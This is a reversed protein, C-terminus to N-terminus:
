KTYVMLYYMICWSILIVGVISKLLKTMEQKEAETHLKIQHIEQEMKMQWKQREVSVAREKEVIMDAKVQAIAECIDPDVPKEIKELSCESPSREMSATAMVRIFRSRVAEIELRHDHHLQETLEKVIKEKEAEFLGKDVDRQEELRGREERERTELDLCIKMRKELEDITFQANQLDSNSTALEEKLRCVEQDKQEAESNYLYILKSLYQLINNQELQFLDKLSVLDQRLLMISKRLSYVPEHNNGDKKEFVLDTPSQGVKEFEETDTESEFGKDSSIPHTFSPMTSQSPIQSESPQLLTPDLNSDLGVAAVVEVLREELSAVEKPKLTNTISKSLFFQTISTLDPISLSLALDPVKMRLMEIDEFCLKPLKTDFLDPAQTAFTPPVDELGPFLFNLMHGEFQSQFNQRRVVEESHVACLHCALDSSWLLFAQSFTRRRAVESVATLYLQPISHTQQLINLQEKLSKLSNYYMSTKEFVTAIETEVGNVWRMRVYINKILEKKAMIIRRRIDRIKQHNKLMVLLQRRHSACLDPLISVDGLNSARNSNQQFAKALDTQEQLLNRVEKLLRELGSFRDSLGKISRMNEDLSHTLARNLVAQLSSVIEESHQQIGRMCMQSLREFSDKSNRLHLWDLLSINEKKSFEELSTVSLHPDQLAIDVLMPLLPITALTNAVDGVTEALHLFHKRSELFEHYYQVFQDMNAKVTPLTDDMNAIVAAYGQHQLHQEHVLRECTQTEEQAMEYFRQALHSRMIVTNIADPLVLCQDVEANMDSAVPGTDVQLLESPIDVNSNHYFEKNYLFIPNTDTGASFHCVRQNAPLTVGGSVLLVQMDVPIKHIKEINEQLVSVQEMGLNIDFTLMIGVDVNFMYLM